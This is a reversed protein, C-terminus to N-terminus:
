ETKRAEGLCESGFRVWGVGIQMRRAAVFRAPNCLRTTALLYRAMDHWFCTCVPTM